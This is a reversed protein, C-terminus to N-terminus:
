QWHLMAKNTHEDLVCAPLQSTGKVALVDCWSDNAMLTM